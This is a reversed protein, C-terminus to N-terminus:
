KLLLKTYGPRKHVIKKIAMEAENVTISLICKKQQAFCTELGCGACDTEHYLLENFRGRPFWQGPLNRASFLGVCPTGVCAALHMPGSDHGVFVTASKLIAASVRPTAQGCLNSSNPGWVKCLTEAAAKEDPAGVVLFKWGALETRLKNTLSLWNGIGWDNSQNKTGLSVAITGGPCFPGELLRAATTRESETLRLDWYSEETLDISGLPHIRRALRKAEWELRGTTPDVDVEFDAPSNPFGVFHKVGALKFFWYDRLASSKSRAAALNVVTDIKLRRIQLILRGLEKMNRSGVPYSLTRNFFYGGSGLVSAIAAARSQVPKNTLLTIDAGPFCQRVKHFCPLAMVTDGLSGLRYILINKQIAFNM